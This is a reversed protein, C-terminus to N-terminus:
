ARQHTAFLADGAPSPGRSEELWRRRLREASVTLEVASPGGSARVCIFGPGIAAVIGVVVGDRPRGPGAWFLGIVDVEVM